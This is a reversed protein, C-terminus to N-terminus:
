DVMGVETVIPGPLVFNRLTSNQSAGYSHSTAQLVTARSSCTIERAAVASGTIEDIQPSAGVTGLSVLM